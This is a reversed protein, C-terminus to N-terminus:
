VEMNDFSICKDCGFKVCHYLGGFIKRPHNLHADLSDIVASPGSVYSPRLDNMLFVLLFDCKNQRNFAVM